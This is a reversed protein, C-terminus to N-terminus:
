NVQERRMNDLEISAITEIAQDDLRALHEVRFGQLELDEFLQQGEGDDPLFVLSGDPGTYVLYDFCGGGQEFRRILSGESPIAYETEGLNFHFVASSKQDEGFIEDPTEFRPM